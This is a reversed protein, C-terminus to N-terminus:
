RIGKFLRETQILPATTLDAHAKAAAIRAATDPANMLAAVQARKFLAMPYGRSSPPVRDLAVAADALRRAALYLVGLELDNRFKDGRLARAQEYAKTAATANGTEMAAAGQRERITALADIVPVRDPTDKIAQELVPIAEVWNTGRAQHLARYVKVDNSGPAIDAASAFAADAEATFGLASFATAQRLAADLNHPDKARIRALLPLAERYHETAFLASVKEIDSLLATMDAPRPADKRVVPAAGGSVYGLSALKQRADADLDAPESAAGPVPV